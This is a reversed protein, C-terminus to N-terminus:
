PTSSIQRSKPLPLNAHYAYYEEKKRLYEDRSLSGSPYSPPSQNPM